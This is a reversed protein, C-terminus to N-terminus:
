LVTLLVTRHNCTDSRVICESGGFVALFIIQLMIHGAEMGKIQDLNFETSCAPKFSATFKSTSYSGDICSYFNFLFFFGIFLVQFSFFFPASFGSFSM